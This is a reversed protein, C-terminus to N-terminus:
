FSCICKCFFFSFFFFFFFSFFNKGSQDKECKAELLPDGTWKTGDAFKWEAKVDEICKSNGRNALGGSFIFYNIICLIYVALAYSGKEHQAIPTACFLIAIMGEVM